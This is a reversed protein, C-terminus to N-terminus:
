EMGTLLHCLRKSSGHSWTILWSGFGFSGNSGLAPQDGLDAGLVGPHEHSISLSVLVGPDEGPPTPTDWSSDTDGSVRAVCWGWTFSSWRGGSFPSSFSTPPYLPLVLNPFTLSVSRDPSPSSCLWTSLQKTIQLHCATPGSFANMVMVLRRWKHMKRSPWIKLKTIYYRM